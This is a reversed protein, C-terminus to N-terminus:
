SRKWLPTERGPRACWDLSRRTSKLKYSSRGWCGAPRSWGACPSTTWSASSRRLYSRSWASLSSTVHSDIFVVTFPSLTKKNQVEDPNYHDKKKGKRRTKFIGTIGKVLRFSTSKEREMFDFVLDASSSFFAIHLAICYIFFASPTEGLNIRGGGWGGEDGAIYTCQGSGKRGGVVIYLFFLGRIGLM